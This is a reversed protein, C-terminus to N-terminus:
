MCMVWACMYIYVYLLLVCGGYVILWLGHLVVCYMVCGVDIKAHLLAWCVCLSFLALCAM